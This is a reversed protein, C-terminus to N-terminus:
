KNIRDHSEKNYDKQSNTHQKTKGSYVGSAHLAVGCMEYIKDMANHANRSLNTKLRLFM